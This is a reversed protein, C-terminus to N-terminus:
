IYHIIIFTHLSEHPNNSDVCENETFMVGRYNFMTLTESSLVDEM